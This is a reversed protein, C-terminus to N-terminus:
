RKMQLAFSKLGCAEIQKERDGKQVEEVNHILGDVEIVLPLAQCYFDLLYVAYVQQRSFKYGLPKTQLYILLLEEGFTPRSRMAGAKEVLLKDGGGFMKPKIM